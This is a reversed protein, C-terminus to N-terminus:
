FNEQIKEPALKRFAQYNWEWSVKKVNQASKHSEIVEFLYIRFNKSESLQKRIEKFITKKEFWM